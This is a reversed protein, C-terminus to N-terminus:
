KVKQWEAGIKKMIQPATYDPYEKKLIVFQKKVYLNYPTLKRKAKKVAGGEQSKDM